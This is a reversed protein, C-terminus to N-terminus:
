RTKGQGGEAQLLNQNLCEQTVAISADDGKQPINNKCLRFEFYGKHFATISVTIEVLIDIFNISMQVTLDAENNTTASKGAHIGLHDWRALCTFQDCLFLCPTSVVLEDSDCFESCRDCWISGVMSDSSM